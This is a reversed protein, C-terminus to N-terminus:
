NFCVTTSEICAQSMQTQRALMKQYPLAIYINLKCRCSVLRQQSIVVGHVVDSGGYM